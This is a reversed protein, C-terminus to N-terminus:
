RRSGVAEGAVLVFGRSRGDNGADSTNMAAFLDAAAIWVPPYKYRAVDLVLFRDTRGDYAALPSIHGGRQQGLAARLYNVVVHHKKRSLHDIALARFEELSSQAAHVTRASLGFRAFLAGLEDLTMGRQLISDRRVIAETRDDFVNEQTFSAPDLGKAPPAPLELSNLVMVLTAVGCFAGNAQTVFETALPWYAERAEAELFWERGQASRLDVLNDALPLREALAPALGVLCALGLRVLLFFVPRRLITM